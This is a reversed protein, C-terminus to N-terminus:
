RTVPLDGSAGFYVRTFNRVAWLGSIDRFVAIKAVGDGCYDAPVPSDGARGFYHRIGNVIAWLGSAPRFIGPDLGPGVDYDAPIPWDGEAGFYTRTVARAAWLGSMERFICINAIGNGIYDAPVPTDDSGGFYLRTLGRIAWLGSAPRFVAIDSIGDGTYDRPVPQSDPVGFYVRTVHRAAWLGSAPRFIGLDTTGDGDYDGPAPLDTDGGFYARTVGRVAWLGVAPRFVAIDSTGDGNYDFNWNDPPATYRNAYVQYNDGDAQSFVVISNGGDDMAIRPGETYEMTGPDIIIPGSWTIGGWRNAYIRTHIDIIQVFVVIARGSEDMAARHDIIDGGSGEDICMLGSWASGNWLNAYLVPIDGEDGNFITIARGQKNMAIKPNCASKGPAGDIFESGSWSSGNWRNACVRFDSYEEGEQYVAIAQGTGGMSVQPYHHGLGPARDIIEAGSWSSGDRCNAYVRPNGDKRQQFVAMAKGTGGMAVQPYAADNEGGADILEAGSWSSGDWCNAYVREHTGDSQIFVTVANGNGDMSIEPPGCSHGAGADILEAGSWFLGNWRDAYVRCNSGDSQNFVAIGNGSDDMAIRPAGVERRTGADIIEAGGWSAGDWKKGVIMLTSGYKEEFVAIANGNEDMAIWPSLARGLNSDIIEAGSWGQGLSNAGPFLFCAATTLVGM